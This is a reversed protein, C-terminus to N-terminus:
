NIEMFSILDQKTFKATQSDEFVIRDAMQVSMKEIIHYNKMVIELANFWCNDMITQRQTLNNDESIRGAFMIGQAITLLEEIQKMDNKATEKQAKEVSKIDVKGTDAHYFEAIVGAQLCSIRNTLFNYTAEINPLDAKPYSKAYAEHFYRLPTYLTHVKIKIYDENFGFEKALFWHGLEHKAVSKSYNFKSM